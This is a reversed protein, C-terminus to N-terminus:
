TKYRVYAAKGAFVMGMEIRNKVQHADLEKYYKNKTIQGLAEDLKKDIAESTSDKDMQKIEMIVGYNATNRPLLLIDYRGKHSEKNSKIIYDDSLMGLLGLIYAQYVREAETHIDFYSFTDQMVTQFHMEFEDLRNNVLSECLALLTKYSVKVHRELWELVIEEFLTHVEYNPISLLYEKKRTKKVPILYGSFVLLSWFTSDESLHPFIINEDVKKRILQNQLLLHIDDRIEDANKANIHKKILLDSSTNVWWTKFGERYNQIYNIVSWPNYLHDKDGFKYGDYWTKVMEFHDALDFYTLIQQVEEETFGFRDAFRFNLITFIGPNNLDSFISEKAVRLIGTVVGKKLYVNDKLTEGLLSKMLAIIEKYYGHVYGTYIAADYEDILVYVEQAYYTYLHKTLKKLSTEYVTASATKLLIENFELKQPHVLFSPLGKRQDEM